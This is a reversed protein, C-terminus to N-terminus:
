KLFYQPIKCYREASLKAEIDTVTRYTGLYTTVRENLNGQKGQMDLRVGEWREKARALGEGM